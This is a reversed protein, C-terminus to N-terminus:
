RAGARWEEYSYGHPNLVQEASCLFCFQMAERYEGDDGYAHPAGRRTKGCADCRFAVTSHHGRHGADLACRGGGRVAAGCGDAPRSM